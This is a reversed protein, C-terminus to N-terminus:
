AKQAQALSPANAEKHQLRARRDIRSLVMGYIVFCAMVTWSIYLKQWAGTLEGYAHLGIGLQNTAFWSFLTIMGLVVNAAHFGPERIYNGLRAHLIVLNMLVIMLAGNEKPDWGWFRGWSYNAWIGGLVTGVLSLFLGVLVFAYSIGGIVRANTDGAKAQGFLRMALYLMSFLCAMMGATYGLNICPVHTALWFNTILVAELQQLTDKPEVDTLFRISLFMGAMGAVNAILLAFTKRTLIEAVLGFIVGTTAIFIMTEYLTTIPPRQMIICRIVIGTTGLVMGVTAALWSLGLTIKAAHRMGPRAQKMAMFVWTAALAIIGLIFTVVGYFFYETRHYHTELGIFNGEGRQGAVSAIHDSFAKAEAKFEADNLSAQALKGYRAMNAYDDDTPKGTGFLVEQMIPGPGNWKHNGLDKPPFNRLMADKDGTLNAGFMARFLGRLWPTNIAERQGWEQRGEKLAAPDISAVNPVNATLFKEWETSLYAETKKLITGIDATQRETATLVTEPVEAAHGDFPDRAFDFHGLMMEYDQFDIALKGITRDEISREEEKMARIKNVRESLIDRASEIENFSYRDRKGKGHLGLLVVADTNDVIFLPLTRATEPRFWTLLLWEMASYTQPKGKENVLPKDTVTDKVPVKEGTTEDLTQAKISQLGHMRLLAFRAVTDLPKVRGNVMVPLSAFTKVVEPDRLLELSAAQAPKAPKEASTAAPQAPAAAKAADQACAGSVGAMLVALVLSPLSFLKM